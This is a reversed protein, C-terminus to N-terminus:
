IFDQNQNCTSWQNQYEKQIHYDMGYNSKLVKERRENFGQYADLFDLM